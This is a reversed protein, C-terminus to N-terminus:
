AAKQLTKLIFICLYISILILRIAAAVYGSVSALRFFTLFLLFCCCCCSIAMLEVKSLNVKPQKEQGAVPKVRTLSLCDRGSAAGPNLMDTPWSWSLQEM